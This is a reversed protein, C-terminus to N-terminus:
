SFPFIWMMCSPYNFNCWESLGCTGGVKDVVMMILRAGDKRVIPVIRDYIGWIVLSMCDNIENELRSKQFVESWGCLVFQWYTQIQKDTVTRKHVKKNGHDCYLPHDLFPKFTTKETQLNCNISYFFFLLM